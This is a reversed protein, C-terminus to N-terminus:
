FWFGLDLVRFGFGQIWFGLDLVRIGFGFRSSIELKKGLGYSRM